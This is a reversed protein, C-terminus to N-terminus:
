FLRELLMVLASMLLLPWEVWKSSVALLVFMFAMVSRVRWRIPM